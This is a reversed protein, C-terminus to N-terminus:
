GHPGGTFLDGGDQAPPPAPDSPLRLLRVVRPRDRASLAYVGPFAAKGDRDSIEIRRCPLDLAYACRLRLVLDPGNAAGALSDVEIRSRPRRLLGLLVRWARRDDNPLRQAEHVIRVGQRTASTMGHEDTHRASKM